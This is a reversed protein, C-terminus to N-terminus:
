WQPRPKGSIEYEIPISIKIAVIIKRLGGFRIVGFGQYQSNANTADYQANKVSPTICRPYGTAELPTDSATAIQLRRIM